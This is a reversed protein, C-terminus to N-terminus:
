INIVVRSVYKKLKDQDKLYNLLLATKSEKQKKNKSGNSELLEIYNRNISIKFLAELELVNTTEILGIFQEKLEGHLVSSETVNDEIKTYNSLTFEWEPAEPLGRHIGRWNYKKNDFSYRKSPNMMGNTLRFHLHGRKIGFIINETKGFRSVVQVENTTFTISLKVCFNQLLNFNQYLQVELTVLNDIYERFNTKSAITSACNQSMLQVDELEM